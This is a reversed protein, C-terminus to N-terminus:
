NKRRRGWERLGVVVGTSPGDSVKYGEDRLAAAAIEPQRRVAAALQRERFKERGADIVRQWSSGRPEVIGETILAELVDELAPRYRRGGVPLHIKHLSGTGKGSAALLADWAASGARVQLHADPYDDKDREYDYHLLEDDQTVASLTYASSKVTLYGRDDLFTGCVVNLWLPVDGVTRLRVPTARGYARMGTGLSARGDPRAFVGIHASDCVTGNLLGKVGEAFDKTLKLVDPKRSM